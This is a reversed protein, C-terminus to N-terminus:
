RWQNRHKNVRKVLSKTGESLAIHILVMLTMPLSLAAMVSLEVISSDM